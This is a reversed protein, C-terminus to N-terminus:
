MVNFQYPDACCVKEKFLEEVLAFREPGFDDKVSYIADRPASPMAGPVVSCYAPLAAKIKPLPKEATKNYKAVDACQHSRPRKLQEGAVDDRLRRCQGRYRLM